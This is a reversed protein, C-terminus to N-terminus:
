LDFIFIKEAGILFKKKLMDSIEVERGLVSIVISEYDCNEDALFEKFALAKEELHLNSIIKTVKNGLSTLLLNALKGDGYLIIKSYNNSLFDIQELLKNYSHSFSYNPNVKDSTRALNAFWYSKYIDPLDIGNKILISIAELMAMGTMSSSIGGQLYNTTIFNLTQFKVGRDLCKLLFDYDSVYRYTLDYPMEKLLGTKIFQSQHFAPTNSYVKNLNARYIEIEKLNLDVIRTDTLIIESHKDWNFSIKSISTSECFVDGSNIFCIWDGSSLSIGKNMADFTGLDEESVFKDVIDAKSEIIERTGDESKGDIVIIEKDPYDQSIINDLTYAIHKADNKVVTVISIKSFSGLDIKEKTRHQIGM